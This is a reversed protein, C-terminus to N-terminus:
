RDYRSFRASGNKEHKYNSWSKRSHPADIIYSMNENNSLKIKSSYSLCPFLKKATGVLVECYAEAASNVEIGDIREKKEIGKQGDFEIENFKENLLSDLTKENESFDEDTEVYESTEKLDQLSLRVDKLMGREDTRIMLFDDKSRVVRNNFLRNFNFRYGEVRVGQSVSFSRETDVSVLMFKDSDGVPMMKKLMRRGCLPRNSDKESLDFKVNEKKIRIKKSGIKQVDYKKSFYNKMKDITKHSSEDVALVYSYGKKLNTMNKEDFRKSDYQNRSNLYNKVRESMALSPKGFSLSCLFLILYSVIYKRIM